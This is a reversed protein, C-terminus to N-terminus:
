SEPDDQPEAFQVATEAGLGPEEDLRPGAELSAREVALEVRLFEEHESPLEADPEESLEALAAEVLEAQSEAPPPVHGNGNGNGNGDVETLQADAIVESITEMSAYLRERREEPAIMTSEDDDQASALLSEIEVIQPLDEISNIGLYSLFADSTAYLLPRGLSEARGSIRILGRELLTAISGGCNVGRVNEVDIRTCPQRYAIVSVCELAPKSLRVRRQGKLMEEIKGSYEPRTVIRWGGGIECLQFAHGAADYDGSLEGLSERLGRKDSGPVISKLRDISLPEPSAFLLAEVVRKMDAAM